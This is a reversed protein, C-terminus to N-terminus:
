HSPVSVTFVTSANSTIGAVLTQTATLSHSGSALHVSLTWSGNAAVTATGIATSGDYVTVTEGATGTGGLVVTARGFSVSGVSASTIAPPAPQAYVTVGVTSSLVSTLNWVTDTQTASLTHAGIALTVPLSWTGDSAVITTGIATAGDFLTISDGAVGTGSLTQATSMTVSAPASVTPAAPNPPLVTVSAAASPNSTVAAILTQTATLSHVGVGLNVTLQWTGNSAVTTTGVQNSGDYLTITEGAVGTGKVTVPSTTKTQAPNSVFTIVPAAPQAYVTVTLTSSKVSVLNWTTDTQTATLAHAGIALSVPLSWTGGPGVTTTGIALSGDYVTVLEGAVGNGSLLVSSFMTATVLTSLTPAAPNPPLVTVSAAASLNSTVAAILTQTATLSHVGVGLNVTLQWTGNSAVTTTGVQTSGDYLTITEGSIGTGKVTVPTTTKTQAPNSISTIAPPVPQAYITVTVSSSKVSVLGWTADTQTATLVHAGLALGVTLSWTGDGLITTSGIVTAGDYLTIANGAVGTGNLQATSAMTATVPASITPAAPNPPLVTVSVAASQLSTVASVLTQTATLAHIGVALNVNLSWTGNSAVTTTGISNSGDYLTIGYGSIGTGKVTVPSTTKTQAPTTTSTIAPPVPQAYVTVVANSSANGTFTSVPDTQKAFYTHKGLSPNTVILSWSGNSAVLATGVVVSGEYVTVTDGAVGSGTITLPVLSGAPVSVSPAPPPAYVTVTAAASGDSTLSPSHNGLFTQTATLTHNGVNLSVSLSWTGTAAITVSGIWHSGDYLAISDGADGTGSVTVPTSSTTPGPISTFTIAPPNPYVTVDVDRSQDSTLGVEPLQNVTQTATIDQSFGVPLFITVSWTGDAQVTGTGVATSGNDYITITDGADGTGSVVIPTTPTPKSTTSLNTISPPDALGLELWTLNTPMWVSGVKVVLGDCILDNLADLDDWSLTAYEAATLQGRVVIRNLLGEGNDDLHWIQEIQQPHASPTLLTVLGLSGNDPHGELDLGPNTADWWIPWYFHNHDFDWPFDGDQWRVLGLEGFPEGDLYTPDYPHLPAVVDPRTPDAGLALGLDLLFQLDDTSLNDDVTPGPGGEWPYYYANADDGDDLLRDGVTNAILIDHGIGGFAIDANTPGTGRPDATDNANPDYGPKLAQALRILTAAEDATFVGRGIDDTVDEGWEDLDHTPDYRYNHLDQYQINNLQNCLDSAEHSSSSFSGVLSCLSSYTVPITVKTSDLNDDANLLDNGAGGFLIDQNTGGVLWDNGGDGFLVDQGDDVVPQPTTADFSTASVFNLLFDIGPAVYIKELPDNPNFYRFLGTSPNFGLVNGPTYYASLSALVGFPNRGNDYYLPLAEAGSMADDGGGGHLFDNGLGGYIIDNGGAYFPQEIATYNLAGTVNVTVVIDDSDANGNSLTLQTTAALGFLPEAIGNRAVELLGDDGLVGDDGTGGSIWDGGSNGYLQDDQGDGFITDAGTEGYIVDNGAEGHLLDGSGINTPHTTTVVWCNSPNSPDCTTYSFDGYPSYDILKVATPIIHQTEGPYNDYNYVLYQGNAGVLRYIDANDGVIVDADRSHGNPGTFGPDNLGIQNGNGGFIEDSGDPRQAPTTTGFLDSSGGVIDDQGWGGFILDNGGGGEIYDNGDTGVGAFDGISNGPTAYTGVNLTVSGDGQIVDNGMQGFIEDNGAGGAIVDNGFLTANTTGGDFLVITRELQGTPDLAPNSQVAPLYTSSGDPNLVATYITPGTLQRDLPNTALGNPLISCNDGCIVDNGAGGDITDNGDQGGAVNHGGILDDDGSGSIISDNGQGGIVINRGNGARIVDDGGGSSNQTFISTYAWGVPAFPVVPIIPVNGTISGFDGFILDNGDGTTITDGGTGGMVWNTGTGTITITDAAGDNPSIASIGTFGGQGATWGITANDGIVINSGGAVTITDSGTGGVIVNNGGGTNITDNGGFSTGISTATLLAGTVPDFTLVASDGMVVNQGGDVSISDDGYGGVAVDFGSGATITDNGGFSPALSTATTLVSTFTPAFYPTFALDASDGFIVNNGDGATITDNGMGGVIVDRGSGATIVDDGGLAPGDAGTETSTMHVLVAPDFIAIGDDGFVVNNGGGADITDNGQGGLIVDNGSGATIQDDGGGATPDTTQATILGGTNTDFAFSGNDGIVLNDGEGATIADSGNGGIILDPGAGGTITDTGGVTPAISEALQVTIPLGGFQAANVTAAFVAGNDGIVINSATGATINDNGAGGVVIASGAGVSITDNGGFTTDTSSLLDIDSPDHDSGSWTLGQPNLEAGVWTVYGDDGFVINTGAGTTITDNGVGGMVIANGDLTSIVDDGGNLPDMTTVMGITMPLTGFRNTDAAAAYVAGSDGLIVNTGSGGTITDNGAGGVVIAQGSGITITDNGGDWTDTSAVLDIDSPDSDMGPWTVNGPNLGVEAAAWTIYGDDGFVFNTNNAGAGGVVTSITDAGTGGMVISNGTGTNITDSGGIGPAITEVLGLTIPLGFFQVGPVAAAAFIAGSDGLIINTGAGGTIQDNGYGGVVIAQGSGVTIVDNGGDWTDTSEVLDIDSANSNAGAWPAGQPYLTGTWDILGDDGFVFSTSTSTTINDAGTGGMVIANGTGISITDNGGYQAGPNTTQVLGVTMPLTGFPNPNGSVGYIAGNDGLMVNTGSGGTITDNGFGGVVIAQGSGITIQDDGGDTPDTSQVLDIDSADSNAGAWPAGQPYLTGTWDILGDDGFVFSTSTSTTITDAGTGGM